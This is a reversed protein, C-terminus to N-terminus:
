RIEFQFNTLLWVLSILNLSLRFLLYQFLDVLLLSLVGGWNMFLFCLQMFIPRCDLHLLKLETSNCSGLLPGLSGGRRFSFHSTWDLFARIAIVGRALDWEFKFTAVLPQTRLLWHTRILHLLQADTQLFCERNLLPVVSRHVIRLCRKSYM